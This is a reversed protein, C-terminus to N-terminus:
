ISQHYIVEGTEKHVIEVTKYVQAFLHKTRIINYQSRVREQRPIGQLYKYPDKSRDGSSSQKM